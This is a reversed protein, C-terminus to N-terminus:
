SGHTLPFGQQTGGGVSPPKSGCTLLQRAAARVPAVVSAAPQLGTAGDGSVPVVIQRRPVQLPEASCSHRALRIPAGGPEIAAGTYCALYNRHDRGAWSRVGRVRDSLTRSGAANAVRLSSSRALRDANPGAEGALAFRALGGTSVDSGQHPSRAMEQSDQSPAPTANRGTLNLAVFSVLECPRFEPAARSYLMRLHSAGAAASERCGLELHGAMDGARCELAGGVPLGHPLFPWEMSPQQQRTHLRVIM